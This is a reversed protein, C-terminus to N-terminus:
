ICAQHHSCHYFSKSSINVSQQYAQYIEPDMEINLHQKKRERKGSRSDGDGM